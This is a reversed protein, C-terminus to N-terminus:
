RCQPALVKSQRDEKQHVQEVVDIAIGEEGRPGMDLVIELDVVKLVAHQTRREHDDVRDDRGGHAPHAISEVALKQDCAADREPAQRGDSRRKRTIGRM